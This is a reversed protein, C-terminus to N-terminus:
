SLVSDKISVISNICNTVTNIAINCINEYNGKWHEAINPEGTVGDICNAQVSKSNNM